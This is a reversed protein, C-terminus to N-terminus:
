EYKSEGLYETKWEKFNDHNIKKLDYRITPTLYFSLKKDNRNVDIM